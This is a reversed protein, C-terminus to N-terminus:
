GRLCPPCPTEHRLGAAVLVSKVVFAWLGGIEQSRVCRAHVLSRSIEHVSSAHAGLFDRICKKGHPWSNKVQYYLTGRHKRQTRRAETTKFDNVIIGEYHNRGPEPDCQRRDDM